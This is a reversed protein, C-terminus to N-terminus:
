TYFCVAHVWFLNSRYSCDLRPGCEKGFLSRLCKLFVLLASSKQQSQRKLSKSVRGTGVITIRKPLVGGKYICVIDVVAAKSKSGGFIPDDKIETVTAFVVRHSYFVKKEDRELGDKRRIGPGFDTCGNVSVVFVLVLLYMYEM